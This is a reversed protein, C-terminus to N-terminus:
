SSAGAAKGRLRAGTDVSYSTQHFPVKQLFYFDRPGASIRVGSLVPRLTTAIIVASYSFWLKKFLTEVSILIM